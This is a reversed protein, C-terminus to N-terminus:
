SVQRATEAQLGQRTQSCHVPVLVATVINTTPDAKLARILDLVRSM